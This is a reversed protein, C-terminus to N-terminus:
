SIDLLTAWQGGGGILITEGDFSTFDPISNFMSENPCKSSVLIDLINDKVDESLQKNSNIIFYNKPLKRNQSM